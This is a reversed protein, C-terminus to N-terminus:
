KRKVVIPGHKFLYTQSANLFRNKFKDPSIATSDEKGLGYLGDLQDETVLFFYINFRQGRSGKDGVWLHTRWNAEFSEGAKQFVLEDVGQIWYDPHRHPKIVPVILLNKRHAHSTVSGEADIERGVRDGDHPYNIVIGYELVGEQQALVFGATVLVLSFALVISLKRIM